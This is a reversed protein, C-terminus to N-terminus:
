PTRFSIYRHECRAYFIGAVQSSQNEDETTEAHSIEIRHNRSCKHGIPIEIEESPGSDHLLVLTLKMSSFMYVNEM